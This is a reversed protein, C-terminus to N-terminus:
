NYIDPDDEEVVFMSGSSRLEEVKPVHGAVTAVKGKKSEPQSSTPAEAEAVRKRKRTAAVRAVVPDKTWCKHWAHGKKGCKLCVEVKQRDAM